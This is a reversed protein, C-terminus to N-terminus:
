EEPINLITFLAARGQAWYSCSEHGCRLTWRKGQNQAAKVVELYAGMGCQQDLDLLRVLYPTIDEWPLKTEGIPVTSACDNLYPM